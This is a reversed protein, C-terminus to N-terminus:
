RLEGTFFGARQGTALPKEITGCASCRYGEANVYARLTTLAGCNPCALVDRGSFLRYYVWHYGFRGIGMLVATTILAEFEGPIGILLLLAVAGWYARWAMRNGRTRRLYFFGDAMALLIFPLTGVMLASPDSLLLLVVWLGAIGYVVKRWMPPPVGLDNPSWTHAREGTGILTLHVSGDKECAMHFPPQENMKEALAQQAGEPLSPLSMELLDDRSKGAGIQKKLARLAARRPLLADVARKTPELARKARELISADDPAALVRLESKAAEIRDSISHTNNTERHQGVHSRLSEGLLAILEDDISEPKERTWSHVIRNGLTLVLIIDGEHDRELRFPPQQNFLDKYGAIMEYHEKAEEPNTPMTERFSDLLLKLLGDRNLGADIREILLPGGGPHNFFDGLIAIVRPDIDEGQNAIDRNELEENAM